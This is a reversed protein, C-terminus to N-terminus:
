AGAHLSDYHHEESLTTMTPNTKDDGTQHHQAGGLPQQDDALAGVSAQLHTELAGPFHFNYLHKGKSTHGGTPFQERADGLLGTLM